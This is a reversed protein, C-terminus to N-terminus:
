FTLALFTVKNKTKVEGYFGTLLATQYRDDPRIGRSTNQGTLAHSCNIPPNHNSKGTQNHPRVGAKLTLAYDIDKAMWREAYECVLRILIWWDCGLPM